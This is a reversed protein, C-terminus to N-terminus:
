KLWEEVRELNGTELLRTLADIVDQVGIYSPGKGYAIHTYEPDMACLGLAWRQSIGLWKAIADHDQSFGITPAGIFDPAGGAAKFEPSVAVWGGFCAPTGCQHLDIENKLIEGASNSQWRSMNLEDDRAKVREMINIAHKINEVNM